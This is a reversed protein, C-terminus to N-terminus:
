FFLSIFSYFVGLIIYIDALNFISPFLSLEIYDIVFGKLLRDLLNSTAGALIFIFANKSNNNFSKKFIFLISLFIVFLVLFVIIYKNLNKLMSFAIGTNEAYTLNLFNSILIIKSGNNFLYKAVFSKFIQDSFILCFFLLM